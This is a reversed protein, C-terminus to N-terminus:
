RPLITKRVESQGFIQTNSCFETSTRKYLAELRTLVGDGFVHRVNSVALAETLTACSLHRLYWTRLRHLHQRGGQLQLPRPRVGRLHRHLRRQRRRQLPRPVRPPGPAATCNYCSDQGAENQFTGMACAKYGAVDTAGKHANFRGACRVQHLLRRRRLRLLPGRRVDPLHHLGRARLLGEHLDSLQGPQVPRGQQLRLRCRV